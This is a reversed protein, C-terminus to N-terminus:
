EIDFTFEIYGDKSLKSLIQLLTELDEKLQNGEFYGSWRSRHYDIKPEYKDANPLKSILIELKKSFPAIGTWSNESEVRHKNIKELTSAKRVEDEEHELLWDDTEFDYFNPEFLFDINIGTEEAIKHLVVDDGRIANQYAMGFGDDVEILESNCSTSEWTRNKDKKARIWLDVSM